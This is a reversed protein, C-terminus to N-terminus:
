MALELSTKAIYYSRTELILVFCSFLLYITVDYYGFIGM